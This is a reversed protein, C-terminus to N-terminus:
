HPSSFSSLLTSSSLSSTQEFRPGNCSLSRAAEHLAAELKACRIRVFLVSFILLHHLSYNVIHVLQLQDYYNMISSFPSSSFRFDNLSCVISAVYPSPSFRQIRFLKFLNSPNSASLFLRNKDSRALYCYSNETALSLLRPLHM